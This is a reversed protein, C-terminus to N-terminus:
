KETLVVDAPTGNITVILKPLQMSSISTSFEQPTIVQACVTNPSPPKLILALTVEPKATYTVSTATNLTYCADPADITGSYTHVGKSLGHAVFIRERHAADGAAAPSSSQDSLTKQPSTAVQPMFSLLCWIVALTIIGFIAVGGARKSDM